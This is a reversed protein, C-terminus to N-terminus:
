SVLALNLTVFVATASVIAITAVGLASYASNGKMCQIIRIFSYQKQLIRYSFLAIKIVNFLQQIDCRLVIYVM